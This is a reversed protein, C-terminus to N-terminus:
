LIVWLGALGLIVGALISRWGQGLWDECSQWAAIGLLSMVAVATWRADGWYRGSLRQFWWAGSALGVNTLLLGWALARRVVYKERPWNESEKHAAIAAAGTVIVAGSGLSSLIMYVIRWGGDLVFAALNASRGLWLGYLALLSALVALVLLLREDRQPALLSFSVLLLGGLGAHLLEYATHFPWYGAQSAYWILGAVLTLIALGSGWWAALPVRSDGRFWFRHGVWLAAAICLLGDGLSLIVRSDM